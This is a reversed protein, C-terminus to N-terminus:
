KNLLQNIQAQQSQIIAYLDKIAQTNIAFLSNYDLTKFDDAYIGYIFIQETVNLDEEITFNNSDILSKITVYRKKYRNYWMSDNSISIENLEDKDYDLIIKLKDGVKLTIDKDITIIKTDNNYNANSYINAIYNPETRVLQPLTKEVDQAIFGYLNVKDKDDLLNFNKPELKNIIDLSNSINTIDTKVRQDSTIQTNTSNTGSIYYSAYGTHNFLLSYQVSNYSTGYTIQWAGGDGGLIQYTGATIQNTSMWVNGLFCTTGNVYLIYTANGATGIGVNNYINTTAHAINVITNGNGVNLNISKTTDGVTLAMSGNGISPPLYLTNADQGSIRLGNLYSYLTSTSTGGVDFYNNGSTPTSASIFAVGTTSLGSSSITLVQTGAVYFSHYNGTPVNYWLQYAGFGLAMCQSSSTGGYIVIAMGDSGIAGGSPYGGQKASFLSVGYVDLNYSSSYVTGIGVNGTTSANGTVTLATGSNITNAGVALQLAVILNGDARYGLYGSQSALDIYNAYNNGYGVYGVQTGTANIFSVYGLSGNLGPSLVLQGNTGGSQLRAVFNGPATSNYIDLSYSSSASTGIGINGSFFTTTATSTATGTSFLYHSNAYSLTIYNGVGASFFANNYDINPFYPNPPNNSSM